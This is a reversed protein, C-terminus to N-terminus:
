YIFEGLKQNIFCGDATAVGCFALALESPRM